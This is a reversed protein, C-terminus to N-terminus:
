VSLKVGFRKEASGDTFNKALDLAKNETFPLTKGGQIGPKLWQEKKPVLLMAPVPSPACLGPQLPRVCVARPCLEWLSLRGQPSLAWPHLHRICALGTHEASHAVPAQASFEARVGSCTLLRGLLCDSVDKEQSDMWGDVCCSVGWPGKQVAGPPLGPGKRGPGVEGVQQVDELRTRPGSPATSGLLDRSPHGGGPRSSGLPPAPGPPALPSAWLSGPGAIRTRLWSSSGVEPCAWFAAYPAWAELSATHSKLCVDKPHHACLM